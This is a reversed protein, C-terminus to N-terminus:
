FLFVQIQMLGMFRLWACRSPTPTHRRCFGFIRFTLVLTRPHTRAAGRSRCRFESMSTYYYTERPVEFTLARTCIKHLTAIFLVKPVPAEERFSSCTREYSFLKDSIFFFKTMLFNISFLKGGRSVILQHARLFLSRVNALAWIWESIECHEQPAIECFGSHTHTHIHTHTLSLSLSISLLLNLFKAITKRHSKVFAQIHICIM